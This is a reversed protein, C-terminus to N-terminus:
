KPCRTFTKLEAVQSMEKPIEVDVVNVRVFRRRRSWNNFILKLAIRSVTLMIQLSVSDIFWWLTRMATMFYMSSRGTVVRTSACSLLVVCAFLSVEREPSNRLGQLLRGERLPLGRAPVALVHSSPVDVWSRM